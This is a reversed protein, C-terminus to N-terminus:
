RNYGYLLRNEVENLVDITKAFSFRVLTNGLDSDKYYFASGPVLAVGCEEILMRTFSESNGSFKWPSFDAMVYYAGEPPKALFGCRKLLTMMKKRRKSFDKRLADFFSNPLGLATIAARQFPTPACITLYDHVTRITESIGAPAAVYGLRWGTVAFIKSIGGTTITRRRMDALNAPPIHVNNDYLIHDYIEDTVITIDHSLALSTIGELEASTFVRGSPNHPTNLILARTNPSVVAKLADLDLKYDPPRMTLYRPIGGAFRVAPVYNEHAPEIIIVEDGSDVVALLSAVIAETVGCTITVETEPNLNMKFRRFLMDAVALRLEPDGWTVSYQNQGSEIAEVAAQVIEPPTAFDPRGQSLNIAGMEEALRMNERIKSPTLGALRKPVTM